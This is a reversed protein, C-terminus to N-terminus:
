AVALIYLCVLFKPSFLILSFVFLIKLSLGILNSVIKTSPPHSFCLLSLLRYSLRRSRSRGRQDERCLRYAGSM